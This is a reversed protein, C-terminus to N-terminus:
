DDVPTLNAPVLVTIKTEVGEYDVLFMSSGSVPIMRNEVERFRTSYEDGNEGYWFLYLFENEDDGNIPSLNPYTLAGDDDLVLAAANQLIVEAEQLTITKM